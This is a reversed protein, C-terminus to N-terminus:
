NATCALKTKYLGHNNYYDNDDELVIVVLIDEVCTCYMGLGAPLSAVVESGVVGLLTTKLILKKM